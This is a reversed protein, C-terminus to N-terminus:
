IVQGEPLRGPRVSSTVGRRALFAVGPLLFAIATVAPALWLGAAVLMGLPMMLVVGFYALTWRADLGGAWERAGLVELIAMLVLGTGMWGALNVWPMGFYPGPTEWIWYPTLLSMAPDLALDWATLLYAALFLRGMRGRRGPFVRNALVWSPLAMLFWSVPIVLPVRGGLKYGLLSSYEYGGFPFGYGTGIHESLFSALVVSAFALMWKRGARRLLYFFLVLASVIIHARPFLKFSLGYFRRASESDPILNPHLAFVWYGGIASLTFLFLIGVGIWDAVHARPNRSSTRARM